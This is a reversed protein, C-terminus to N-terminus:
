LSCPIFDTGCWRRIQSVGGMAAKRRRAAGKVPRRDRIPGFLALPRDGAPRSPRHFLRLPSHYTNATMITAEDAGAIMRGPTQPPLQASITFNQAM